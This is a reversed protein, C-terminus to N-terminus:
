KYYRKSQIKNIKFLQKKTKKKRGGAKRAELAGKQTLANVVAQGNINTNIYDHAITLPTKGRLAQGNLTGKTPAKNLDIGEREILLEVVRIHGKFAAWFLGTLNNIDGMNIDVGPTILLSEV